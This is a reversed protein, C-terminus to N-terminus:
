IEGSEALALMMSYQEFAKRVAPYKKILEAEREKQEVITQFLNYHGTRKANNFVQQEFEAVRELESQAIEITYLPETDQIYNIHSQVMNYNSHDKFYEANIKNYRVARKNTDIIRVGHHECFERVTNKNM